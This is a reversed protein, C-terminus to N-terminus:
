APGAALETAVAAALRANAVLLERNAQLSRGGTLEALRALLFPTV